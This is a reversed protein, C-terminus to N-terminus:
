GSSCRLGFPRWFNRPNKHVEGPSLFDMDTMVGRRLLQPLAATGNTVNM